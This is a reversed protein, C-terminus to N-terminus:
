DYHQLGPWIERWPRQRGRCVWVTRGQEENDIGVGNDLRTVMQCSDFASRAGGMGVLIAVSASEPPPGLNYLANQGSYVKPLGYRSGYRDIAGAEGYNGTIIVAHGAEDASLGRYAEAVQRVYAPWGIQDRTAQNIETIPTRALAPIPLIPLAILAAVAANLVMATAVLARRGARGAVWNVTAVAGVAWLALQLGLTYYPQGAILPVVVCLALYAVGIARIPRLAPDRLLKVLGAIWIAAVPPGLMLLQLPVFTLRAEDGKNRALAGAMKLQPWDHTAQYVLNPAGVALAIAVGAWLWPSRLVRRPGVLLLGLGIALLLLVILHKNYLALGVVGGVFLWWRPQDRLLARIVGLLAAPWVVMDITATLLVHGAILPFGSAAVLAALTQAARGGGVERAILAVLVATVATCLAAPARLGWLSDGFLATAFRAVLPTAPPQDVYGWSPHQGLIRFYLEDRHYDYRGAFALLVVTVAAAVAGVPAWAVPPRNV